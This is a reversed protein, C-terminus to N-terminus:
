TKRACHSIVNNSYTLVLNINGKIHGFKSTSHSTLMGCTHFFALNVFCVCIFLLFLHYDTIYFYYYICYLCWWPLQYGNVISNHRLNLVLKGKLHSFIDYIAIFYWWAMFATSTNWNTHTNKLIMSCSFYCM